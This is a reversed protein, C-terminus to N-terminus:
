GERNVFVRALQKKDGVVFVIDGTQLAFESEPNLFREGGREVGVVLAKAKERLGTQRITRGSVASDERIVYQHLAVESSHGELVATEGARLFVKLRQVQHDTGLVLLRDGPFVVQEKGPVPISHDGRRILVVNIGTTERWRLELLTKGVCPAFPPVDVPVIHANWPALEQRNSQAAEIERQNLNSFFRGEIWKYFDRIRDSFLLILTIMLATVLIGAYPNFFRKLLFGIFFAALGLKVMRVVFVLGKYRATFIVNAHAESAGKVALAWLFPMLVVLTLFATGIKLALSGGERDIWPLAYESAIFILAVILISLLLTNIITSRVYVKWESSLTIKKTESSYRDMRAVLRRPLRHYLWHYFSGSSQILYPTTLTTVASVAVAIPYLFGSTVQLTQGLTAIIFSFEGIQALSFGAQISRQLPQGSLLAGIATSFVKGVITVACLLFIPGAYTLLMGPDILMGVSVFFIAGFLDKVPKILHEIKEAKTTEALISGMIFAGLAPSFGVANA